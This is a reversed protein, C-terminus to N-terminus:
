AILYVDFLPDWRRWRLPCSSCMSCTLPADMPVSSMENKNILTSFITVAWILDHVAMETGKLFLPVSGYSVAWTLSWVHMTAGATRGSARLWIYICTCPCSFRGGVESQAARYSQKEDWKKAEHQVLVGTAASNVLDLHQRSGGFWVCKCKNFVCACSYLCM